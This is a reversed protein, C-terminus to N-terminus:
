VHARGIECGNFEFIKYYYTTSASLGTVFVSSGTGNYVVFEGAAITGGAAFVTNASYSTGDTPTGAVAALSVVVM